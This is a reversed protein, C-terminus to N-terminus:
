NSISGIGECHTNIVTKWGEVSELAKEDQRVDPDKGWSLFSYIKLLYCHFMVFYFM